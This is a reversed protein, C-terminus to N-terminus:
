RGGAGHLVRPTGGELVQGRLGGCVRDLGRRLAARDMGRAATATCCGRVRTGSRTRRLVRTSEPLPIPPLRHEDTLCHPECLASIPARIPLGSRGCRRLSLPLFLRLFRFAPAHCTCRAYGDPGCLEARADACLDAAHAPLHRRRQDARTDASHLRLIVTCATTRCGGAAATCGSRPRTRQKATPERRPVFSGTLVPQTSQLVARQSM